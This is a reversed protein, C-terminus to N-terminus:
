CQGSTATRSKVWGDRAQIEGSFFEFANELDTGLSSRLKSFHVAVVGWGFFDLVSFCHFGDGKVM